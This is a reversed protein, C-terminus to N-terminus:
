ETDPQKKKTIWLQSDYVFFEGIGEKQLKEVMSSMDVSSIAGEIVRAPFEDGNSDWVIVSEVNLVDNELTVKGRVNVIVSDGHRIGLTFLLFAVVTSEMVDKVAPIKAAAKLPVSVSAEVYEGIMVVSVGDVVARWPGDQTSDGNEDVEDQSLLRLLVNLDRDNLVVEDSSKIRVLLQKLKYSELDIEAISPPSAYAAMPAPLFTAPVIGTFLVLIKVFQEM